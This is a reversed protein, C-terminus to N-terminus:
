CGTSPRVLRRGDDAARRADPGRLVAGGALRRGAGRRPLGRRHHRRDLHRRGRQVTVGGVRSRAARRRRRAGRGRVRRSAWAAPSSPPTRRDQRRPQHPHGRRRDHRRPRRPQDRPAGPHGHEGAAALEVARTRLRFRRASPRARRPPWARPSCRARRRRRRVAPVDAAGAPRRHGAAAGRGHDILREDVLQAAIRFAAAATRKGVRTQLMWLKGREITFEIDCMDRYHTELRACSARHLEDYSTPDLEASTTSPCPTASAPSSTRARPTPAPLRRLRGARRHRPRPHLRRRHGLRRRPQRVGDRLRQRRHRPRAPIRERRRYLRARDTNWSDFVARSAGPRAARAPGAPVDRGTHERSSASSRRRGAGAPRRRRARRRSRRGQADKATTSRRRSCSATSASCPRASCRSAAPPLLGVRVARREAHRPSARARSEDNLGVNLVTEMMGPMSFKAGSRVRCWCRIPRTARPTAGDRGGARRLHEAVEDDLGQPSAAPRLYAPLGRHHDHVGAAGAARPRTMEALNAGKGGLLDVQERSGEAFDFVMRAAEASM